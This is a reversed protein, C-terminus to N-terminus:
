VAEDVDGALGVGLAGLDEVLGGGVGVALDVLDRGQQGPLLTLRQELRLDLRLAEGVVDGPEGVEGVLDVALV